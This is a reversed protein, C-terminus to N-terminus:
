SQKSIVLKEIDAVTSFHEMTVDAIDLRVGFEEEVFSIIRMVQLSDVVGDLLPTDDTLRGRHHIRLQTQVFRRIADAIEGM